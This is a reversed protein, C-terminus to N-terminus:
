IGCAYWDGAGTMKQDTNYFVFNTTSKTSLTFTGNDGSASNWDPTLVVTYNTSTFSTNLNVTTSAGEGTSAPTRGGQEIWGDSYKRYWSAGSRYSKTIVAPKTSTAGGVATAYSVASPISLAVNGSDDPSIGNVTKVPVLTGTLREGDAGYATTGSVITDATVTSDTIDMLITGDSLEVKSVKM